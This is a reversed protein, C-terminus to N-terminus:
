VLNDNNDPTLQQEMTLISTPNATQHTSRINKKKQKKKSYADHVLPDRFQKQLTAVPMSQPTKPTVPHTKSPAPPTHAAVTAAVVTTSKTAAPPPAVPEPNSVPATTVGATSKATAIPPITSVFAAVAQTDAYWCWSSQKIRQHNVAGSGASPPADSNPRGSPLSQPQHPQQGSPHIQQYQQNQPPQQERWDRSSLSRTM